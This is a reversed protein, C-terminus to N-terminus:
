AKIKEVAKILAPIIEIYDGVLGYNCNDFIPVDPVKNSAVVSRQIPAEKLLNPYIEKLPKSYMRGGFMRRVRLEVGELLLVKFVEALAYAATSGAPGAGVVVVDFLRNM